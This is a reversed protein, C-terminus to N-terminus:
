KVTNPQFRGNPHARYDAPPQHIENSDLDFLMLTASDVCSPEASMEEDGPTIKLVIQGSATVGEGSVFFSCDRGFHQSFIQHLDPRFFAGMERDFAVITTDAWDSLYTWLHLDLLLLRGDASWDVLRLANGLEDVTAEQMLVLAFEDKGSAVYLRSTNVCFDGHADRRPLSETEVYARHGGPSILLPSRILKPGKPKDLCSLWPRPNEEAQSEGSKVSPPAPAQKASPTVGQVPPNPATGPVQASATAVLLAALALLRTAISRTAGPAAFNISM